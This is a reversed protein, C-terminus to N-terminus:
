KLKRYQLVALMSFDVMIGTIWILSQWWNDGVSTGLILSRVWNVTVTIPSVKAFAELWSPMTDIPVFISSAFILPFLWIFGAVQSAEPNNVSLGISASVWSFAFGFFIIILIALVMSDLGGGARFGMVLATLIVLIVVFINRILDALTRGALVASRAMPLSRFRNIMGKNLDESLGIGTQVSGFLVLQVLIGPVLFNIYNEQSTKIAGGFVYTFLMLFLIPQITSFVLLQPLRIYRIIGRWAMALTDSLLWYLKKKNQM